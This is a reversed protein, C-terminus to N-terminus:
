NIWSIKTNENTSLLTRKKKFEQETQAQETTELSRGSLTLPNIFHLASNSLAAMLSIDGWKLVGPIHVAMNYYDIGERTDFQYSIPSERLTISSVASTFTSFLLASLGTEKSADITIREAQYKAQLFQTILNIDEVWKGMTTNGLWLASRSLTHFPPLAGTIKIAEPSSNEGTGWLDPLIIGQGENKLQEILASPIGQKGSSHLLITYQRKIGKPAYYLLPIEQNDSGKIVMRLWGNKSPFEQIRSIKSPSELHLIEKLQQIKRTKDLKSQNLLVHRFEEGKAKCFEATTMIIKPREGPPYTALLKPDITHFPNIKITEEPSRNTLFKNFSRVMAEQMEPWYGHGTDFLEYSLKDEASLHKYIPKVQQYTELMQDVAFAKNLDKKANMITLARPAILSLIGAEETFTMGNPLLECICNSNMIYSQFTGISVVPVVAKVRSDLAALWMAQNGGGSAGTAGINNKDVYPFSALLDVGRSNDTVQMGLLTEGINMLSAGLNSGHYEHKEHITTREGAGWADMNLCVYGNSALIHAVSQFLESRRGHDWHGHTIIAAPFVGEGDPVYLNATAYIGPRTQFSINKITYGDRQVSGTETYELPLNQNLLAGSQRIVNSSIEKTFEKLEKSGTPLIPHAAKETALSRLSRAIKDSQDNDYVKPLKDEALMPISVLIFHLFLVGAILKM